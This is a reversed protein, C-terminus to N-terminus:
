SKMTDGRAAAAAPRRSRDLDIVNILWVATGGATGARAVEKNIETMADKALKVTLSIYGSALETAM